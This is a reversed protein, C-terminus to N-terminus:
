NDGGEFWTLKTISGEQSSPKTPLLSDKEGTAPSPNLQWVRVVLSGAITLWILPISLLKGALPDVQGYQYAANAASGWVGLIGVAAAGYRREVNNVTNWTDGISLHLMLALIAPSAYSAGGDLLIATSGARLPGVILLWVIPFVVGPPQWEAQKRPREPAAQKSEDIEFNERKPRDNLLPNFIRSKIALVYFLFFNAAFPLQVGTADSLADFGTFVGAILTMQAVIAGAYKAIAETDM